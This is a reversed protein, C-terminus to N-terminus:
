FFYEREVVHMSQVLPRYQNVAKGAGRYSRRQDVLALSSNNQAGSRVLKKKVLERRKRQDMRQVLHTQAAIRRKCCGAIQEILDSKRVRLDSEMRVRNIAHHGVLRRVNQM